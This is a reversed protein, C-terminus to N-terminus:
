DASTDVIRSLLDSLAAVQEVDLNGFVSQTAVTSLLKAEALATRGAPTLTLDYVRRDTASQSRELYGRHDLDDVTRVMGAKDSGLAAILDKQTSVGHRELTLLVGFHRGSLSMPALASALEMAARRHAQRLLLGLQALNASSEPPQM